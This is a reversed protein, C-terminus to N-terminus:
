LADVGVMRSHHGQFFRYLASRTPFRCQFTVNQLTSVSAVDWEGAAAISTVRVPREVGFVWKKSLRPRSGGCGIIRVKLLNSFILSASVSTM